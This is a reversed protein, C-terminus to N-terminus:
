SRRIAIRREAAQGEGVREFREGGDIEGDLRDDLRHVGLAREEGREIAERRGAVSSADFVDDIEIM